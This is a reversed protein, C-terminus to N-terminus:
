KSRRSSQNEDAEEDDSLVEIIEAILQRFAFAAPIDSYAEVVAQRLVTAKGIATVDPITTHFVLDEGFEGIVADRTDRDLTQRSTYMSLLAMLGM